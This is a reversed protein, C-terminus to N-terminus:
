ELRRGESRGGPWVCGPDDKEGLGGRGNGDDGVRCLEDPFVGRGAADNEGDARTVVGDTAEASERKPNHVKIERGLGDYERTVTIAESGAAVNSM